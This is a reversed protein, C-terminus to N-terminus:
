AVPAVAAYLNAVAIAGGALHVPVLIRCYDPGEFADLAAWQWPLRDSTLLMVPVPPSSEDWTFVPFERDARRGRVFGPQWTGGLAAVEHHNSQGPALTGYAALWRACGFETELLLEASGGGLTRRDVNAARLRTCLGAPATPFNKM